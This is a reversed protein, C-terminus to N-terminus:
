TENKLRHTPTCAIYLHEKGCFLNCWNSDLKIHWGDM